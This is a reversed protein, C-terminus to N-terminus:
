QSMEAGCGIRWGRHLYRKELGVDRLVGARNEPETGAESQVGM